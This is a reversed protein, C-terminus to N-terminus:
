TSRLPGLGLRLVDGPTNANELARGEPDVQRWEAEGVVHVPVVRALQQLSPDGAALLAELAPLCARSWLAHLPQLRGGWQVLVAAVGARRGALFNIPEARLFPMDCAAAFIWGTAAAHLAAHLGGPAGKGRLRDSVVAAGLERYPSPDSAVVVLSADFLEGFLQLTRVAISEGDVTLLGKPVGGLRAGRGGALLAGTCDDIRSAPM